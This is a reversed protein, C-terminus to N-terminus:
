CGNMRADSGAAALARARVKTEDGYIGLLTRGVSQGYDGQLGEHCIAMNCEIERRITPIVPSIDGASAFDYIDKLDFDFKVEENQKQDSDFLVKGNKEIHVINAHSRKLEVVCNDDGASLKVIIHLVENSQLHSVKCFDSDLLEKIKVVDNATVNKLVELNLSSDGAVIGTICAADIGKLGNTGPVVVSKVNKIINGSVLAECTTPMVGLVERAKTAALAIAIPETCGLAPVLEEKLLKEFLKAKEMFLFGEFLMHWDEVSHLCCASTMSM